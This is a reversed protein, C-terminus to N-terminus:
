AAFPPKSCHQKLLLRLHRRPSTDNNYKLPKNLKIVTRMCKISDQRQVTTVMGIDGNKLESFITYKYSDVHINPSLIPENDLAQETRSSHTYVKNDLSKNGDREIERRTM